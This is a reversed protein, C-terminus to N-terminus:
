QGIAEHSLRGCDNWRAQNLSALVQGLHRRGPKELATTIWMCDIPYQLTGGNSATFM